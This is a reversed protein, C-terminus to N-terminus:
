NIFLFFIYILLVVALIVVENAQLFFKRSKKSTTQDASHNERAAFISAIFILIATALLFAGIREFNVKNAIMADKYQHAIQEGYKIKLDNFYHPNEADRGSTHSTYFSFVCLAIVLILNFLISKFRTSNKTALFIILLGVAPFLLAYLDLRMPPFTLIGGLIILIISAINASITKYM